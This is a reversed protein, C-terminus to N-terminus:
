SSATVVRDRSALDKIVVIDSWGDDVLIGPVSIGQDYGIELYVRGRDKLYMKAAGSIMRYYDLGDDGGHLATHPEYAAVSDDLTKMQPSSIYPPNSVIFDFQKQPKIATLMDSCILNINKNTSPHHINQAAVRAARYSIDIAVASWVPRLATLVAALIGSGTGIDIFQATANKETNIVTEILTETDPRPILVDGNVFFERDYFYAKGLIYPLPEGLLRREVITNIRALDDDSIIISTDTYLQTRNINLSQEIINEADALALDDSIPILKTRIDRLLKNITM